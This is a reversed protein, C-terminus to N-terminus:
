SPEPDRNRAYSTYKAHRECLKFNNVACNHAQTQPMVCTNQTASFSLTRSWCSGSLFVYGYCHMVFSHATMHGTGLAYSPNNLIWESGSAAPLHLEARICTGRLCICPTSIFAVIFVFLYLTYRSSPSLRYAQAEHASLCTGNSRLITPAHAIFKQWALSWYVLDGNYASCLAHVQAKYKSWSRREIFHHVIFRSMVTCRYDAICAGCLEWVPFSYSVMSKWPCTSGVSTCLMDGTLAVLWRVVVM